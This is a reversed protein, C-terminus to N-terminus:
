DEAAADDDDRETFADVLSLARTPAPLSPAAGDVLLSPAGFRLFAGLPGSDEVLVPGACAGLIICIAAGSFWTVLSLAVGFFGFQRFNSTVNNPMWVTASVAYAAMALGTVAGCAVLVRMRVQGMLMLWATLTWVTVSTALAIIAFFILGIGGPMVKRIGGMLAMYLLVGGLWAPGRVYSGLGGSGVRRWARLYIRQLATTFSTAFFFTLILGLVGTARRIDASTAFAQKAEGLAPGTVGLRHTLTSFIASRLSAPVFAAVVIVLPFFSVFAKGALAVSRDVFENELLREWVQWLLTQEVRARAKAVAGRAAEANHHSAKPGSSM